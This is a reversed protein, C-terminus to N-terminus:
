PRDGMLSAMTCSEDPCGAALTKDDTSAVNRVVKTRLVLKDGFEQVLKQELEQQTM